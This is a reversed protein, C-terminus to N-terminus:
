FSSAVVRSLIEFLTHFQSNLMESGFNRDHTESFINENMGMEPKPRFCGLFLNMADQKVNDHFSNSYHRMLSVLMEKPKTTM